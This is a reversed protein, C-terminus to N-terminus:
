YRVVFGGYANVGPLPNFFRRGSDNIIAFASYKRDFVNRIGFFPEFRFRSLGEPQKYGFRLNTVAYPPNTFNNADNTFFRGVYQTEVAGFVGFPFQYFLQGYFSHKPVGPQRNGTFNNIGNDYQTFVFDSYTYSGTLILGSVPLVISTLELGNQKVEGVNQFSNNPFAGFPSILDNIYQRFLAAELSVRQDLFSGRMGVEYNTSTQPDLTDNFGFVGGPLVRLEGIIPTEFGRSFNGYLSFTDTPQYAVGIKPTFKRFTRGVRVTNRAVDQSTFKVYDFRGGATITVNPVISFEELFYLGATDATEDLDVIVANTSRLSIPTRIPTNQYELGVTFRNGFGGLNRQNLYRVNFGRNYFKQDIFVGIQQFPGLTRPIVYGTIELDDEGFLERHYVAGFRFEKVVAFVDNALFAPSAQRPDALFQAETLPGPSQQYNDDYGLIVMLSSREDVNFSLKTSFGTNNFRSQERYGDQDTRFAAAYFGFRGYQGGASLHEKYLDYSGFVQRYGITFKTPPPNETLINVVGGSQNGYLVSSPGKLVEIRQASELDINTLDQASGGANNKPIGDVLVRVGRVGSGAPSNARTGAGRIIIRVRSGNGGLEDEIRVGAVKKLPEELTAARQGTRQIEDNSVVSVASSIKGIEQESRTGTVVVTEAVGGPELQFDFNLDQGAASKVFANTLQRFGPKSVVLRYEGPLVGSFAFRGSQDTLQSRTQNTDINVLRVEAGVIVAGNSDEVLGTVAAPTQGALNQSVLIMVALAAFVRCYFYFGRNEVVSGAINIRSM